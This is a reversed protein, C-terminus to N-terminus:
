LKIDLHVNRSESWNKFHHEANLIFPHVATQLNAAAEHPVKYM